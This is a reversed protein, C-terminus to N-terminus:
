VSDLIWTSNWGKKFIKWIQSVKVTLIHEISRKNSSANSPRKCIEICHDEVSSYANQFLMLITNHSSGIGSQTGEENDYNNIAGHIAISNEINEPLAVRNERASEINWTPLCLDIRKLEDYSMCLRLRNMITILNKSKCRSNEEKWQSSLILYDPINYWM